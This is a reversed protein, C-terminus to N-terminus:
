TADNDVTLAFKQARTEGLGLQKARSVPVIFLICLDGCLDGCLDRPIGLITINRAQSVGRKRLFGLVYFFCLFFVFGYDYTFFM